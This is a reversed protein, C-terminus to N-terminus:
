KYQHQVSYDVGDFTFYWKFIPKYINNLNSSGLNKSAGAALTGLLNVDTTRARVIGSNSDIIEFKTLTVSYFSQNVIASYISGTIYGNINVVSSSPFYLRMKNTIQVVEINCSATYYGDITTVTIQASGIAKAQVNGNNDVSVINQDSSAWTVVKNAANEPQITATLTSTENVLLSLSSKNLSVGTVPVPLIKVLCTAQYGGDNTTATVTAEGVSVGTITGQNVTVVSNNSTSWNVTKDTANGPSITLVLQTSTGNIIEITSANLTIGTVRIPNVKVSCTTKIQGDKSSVEIITEGVSIGKVTGNNVTVISTNLSKWEVEKNTANDPKVTYTLTEENGILLELNTKNLTISTVLIPNVAVSCTTKIKGDTTSVEITTNGVSVAKVVGNGVTAISPNLSTWIVEKNTTNDPIITYTLTEEGGVLLTLSTKNLIIGTAEIPLVEVQCNATLTNGQQTTAKVTITAEGVSLATVKGGNNVSLVQDNSSSWSYNPEDADIPSYFVKFQYTENIRLELTNKDLQVSTVIVEDDKSCGMLVGSLLLAFMLKKMNQNLHNTTTM